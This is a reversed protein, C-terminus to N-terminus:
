EISSKKKILYDVINFKDHIVAYHLMTKGHNDTKDIDLKGLEKIKNIRGLKTLRFQDM